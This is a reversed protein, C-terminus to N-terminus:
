FAKIAGTLMLILKMLHNQDTSAIAEQPIQTIFDIPIRIVDPLFQRTKQRTCIFCLSEMLNQLNRNSIAGSYTVLHNKLTFVDQESFIDPCNYGLDMVAQVYLQELAELDVCAPLTRVSTIKTLLEVSDRMSLVIELATSLAEPIKTFISAMESM